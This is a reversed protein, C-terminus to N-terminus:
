LSDPKVDCSPYLYSTAPTFRYFSEYFETIAAGFRDTSYEAPHLVSALWLSGLVSGPVPSDWAEIYNPFQYVRGNKVATCDALNTDNLVSDITYSADAALVIYEPDWSLLQEYSIESWYSETLDQAVNKGGAHEILTNQYMEPGATSLFSSNGALYVSPIEVDALLSDLEFLMIGTTSLLANAADQSNVATGLLVAAEELLEQNEPNVALVTLGLEELSPIVDKLKAPVVVLDPNLSACEELDFEKATGVSPLELLSPASLSYIPRSAAKAEIGVLRDQRNLALFLSTSIYYGSVITQPESEITIERGLQDTLTVPYATKRSSTFNDESSFVTDTNETTGPTESEASETHNSATSDPSNGCGAFVASLSFALICTLLKIKKKM